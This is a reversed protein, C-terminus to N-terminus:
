ILITSDLLYSLDYINSPNLETGLSGNGASIGMYKPMGPKKYAHSLEGASSM